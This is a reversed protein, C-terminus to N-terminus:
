GASRDAAVRCMLTKRQSWSTFGRVHGSGITLSIERGLEDSLFGVRELVNHEPFSRACGACPVLLPAIVTSAWYCLEAATDTPLDTVDQTPQTSSTHRARWSIQPHETAVCRLMAHLAHGTEGHHATM